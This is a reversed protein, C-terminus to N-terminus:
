PEGFKRAFLHPLSEAIVFAKLEAPPMSDLVWLVCEM